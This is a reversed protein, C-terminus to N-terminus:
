EIKSLKKYKYAKLKNNTQDYIEYLYKYIEIKEQKKHSNKLARKLYNIANDYQGNKMSIEANVLYLNYYFSQNTGIVKDKNVVSNIKNLIELAKHELGAAQYIHYMNLEGNLKNISNKISGYNYEIISLAKEAYLVAKEKNEKNLYSYALCFYIEILMNAKDGQLKKIIKEAKKYNNIAKESNGEYNAIEGFDKYVEYFVYATEPYFSEYNKLAKNLYAKADTINGEQLKVEAALRLFKGYIYPVHNKVPEIKDLTNKAYENAEKYKGINKYLNIQKEAVPLFLLSDSPLSEYFKNLKKVYKNFKYQNTLELYYDLYQQYLNQMEYQKGYESVFKNHEKLLALAEDFQKMDIFYQIKNVNYVITAETRYKDLSHILNKAEDLEKKLLEMKQGAQYLIAMSMHYYFLELSKNNKDEQIRSYYKDLAARSDLHNQMITYIQSLTLYENANDYKNNVIQYHYNLAKYAEEFCLNYNVFGNLVNSKLDKNDNNLTYIEYVKDFDKKALDPIRLELYYRARALYAFGTKPDTKGFYKISSNILYNATRLAEDYKQIEMQTYVLKEVKSIYEESLNDMNNEIVSKQIEKNIYNEDAFVPLIIFTLIILLIYMRKNTQFYRLHM